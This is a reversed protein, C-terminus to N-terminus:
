TVQGLDCLQYTISHPNSGKLALSLLVSNHPVLFCLTKCKMEWEGSNGISCRGRGQTLAPLLPLMNPPVQTRAANGSAWSTGPTDQSRQTLGRKTGPGRPQRMPASGAPCQSLPGPFLASPCSNFSSSHTVQPNGACPVTELLSVAVWFATLPSPRPIGM